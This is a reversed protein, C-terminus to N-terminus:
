VCASALVFPSWLAHTNLTLNLKLNLCKNTVYVAICTYCTTFHGYWDSWLNHQCLALQSNSYLISIFMLQVTYQLYLIIYVTCFLHVYTTVYLPWCLFIITNIKYFISYALATIFFFIVLLSTSKSKGYKLRNNKLYMKDQFKNKCKLLQQHQYKMLSASSDRFLCWYFLFHWWIFCVKNQVYINLKLPGSNLWRFATRKVRGELFIYCIINWESLNLKRYKLILIIMIKWLRPIILWCWCFFIEWREKEKGEKRRKTM